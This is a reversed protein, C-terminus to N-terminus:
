RGSAGRGAGAWCWTSWRAERWGGGSCCALCRWAWTQRRSRSLTWSSPSLTTPGARWARLSMPIFELILFNDSECRLPVGPGAGGPFAAPPPLAPHPPVRGPKGRHLLAVSGLSPLVPRYWQPWERYLSTLGGGAVRGKGIVVFEKTEAAEQGTRHNGCRSSGTCARSPM